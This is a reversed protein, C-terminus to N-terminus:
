LEVFMVSIM